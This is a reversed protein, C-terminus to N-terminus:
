VSGKAVLPFVTLIILDGSKATNCIELSHNPTVLFEKMLEATCDLDQGNVTGVGSWAIGPFFVM